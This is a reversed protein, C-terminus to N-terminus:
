AVPAVSVRATGVVFRLRGDPERVGVAYTSETLFFSAVAQPDDGAIVFIVSEGAPFPTVLGSDDPPNRGIRGGDRRAQKPDRFSGTRADSLLTRGIPECYLGSGPVPHCSERRAQRLNRSTRRTRYGPAVAWERGFPGASRALGANACDADSSPESLGSPGVAWDMSTSM